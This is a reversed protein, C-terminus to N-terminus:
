NLLRNRVYRGKELSSFYQELLPHNVAVLMIDAELNQEAVYTSNASGDVLISYWPKDKPPRSKAVQEYWSASLQFDHDVDIIVGRYGFLRHHIIDGVSFKVTTINSVPKM